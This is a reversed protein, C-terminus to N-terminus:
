EVLTGRYCLIHWGNKGKLTRFRKAGKSKLYEKVLPLTYDTLSYVAHSQVYDFLSQQYVLEWDRNYIGIGGKPIDIKQYKDRPLAM